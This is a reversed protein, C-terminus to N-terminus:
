NKCRHLHCSRRLAVQELPLRTTRLPTTQSARLECSEEDEDDADAVRQDQSDSGDSELDEEDSESEEERTLTAQKTLRSM